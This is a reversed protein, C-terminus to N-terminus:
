CATHTGISTYHDRSRMIWKLIISNFVSFNITSSDQYAFVDLFEPYTAKAEEIATNMDADDATVNFLGEGKNEIKKTNEKKGECSFLFISVLFISLRKIM